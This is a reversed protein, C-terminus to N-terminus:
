SFLMKWKIHGMSRLIKSSGSNQWRRQMNKHGAENKKEALKVVKVGCKRLVVSSLRVSTQGSVPSVQRRTSM